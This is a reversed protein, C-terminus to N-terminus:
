CRSIKNCTQIYLFVEVIIDVKCSPLKDLIHLIVKMTKNKGAKATEKGDRAWSILPLRDSRLAKNARVM